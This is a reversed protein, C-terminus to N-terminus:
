RGVQLCVITGESQRTASNDRFYLRGNSLAPLARTTDRSVQASDLEIFKSTDPRALLLTGDIKLLLLHNDALIMHAVGFGRVSWQVKGEVSVCRLEAAGVDERGHIGYLHDQHHIATNYQSSLTQDNSWLVVPQPKDTELKAMVAGVGYAASVFLRDNFVLPTAANVTPGRM